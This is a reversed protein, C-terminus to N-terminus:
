EFGEPPISHVLAHFAPCLLCTEKGYKEVLYKGFTGIDHFHDFKNNCGMVFHVGDKIDEVFEPICPTGEPSDDSPTPNEIPM